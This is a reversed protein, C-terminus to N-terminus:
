SAAELPIRTEPVRSSVTGLFARVIAPPAGTTTAARDAARYTSSSSATSCTTSSAATDIAIFIAVHNM